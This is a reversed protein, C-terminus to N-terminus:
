GVPPGASCSPNDGVVREFSRIHIDSFCVEKKTYAGSRRSSPTSRDTDTQSSTQDVHDPHSSGSSLSAGRTSRDSVSCSSEGSGSNSRGGSSRCHSSSRRLAQEMADVSPQGSFDSSQTLQDEHCKLCSKLNVPQQQDRKSNNNNEHRELGKRSRIKKWVM